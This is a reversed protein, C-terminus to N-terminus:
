NKRVAEVVGEIYGKVYGIAYGIGYLAKGIITRVM